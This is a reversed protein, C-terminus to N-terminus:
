TAAASYKSIRLSPLGTFGLRQILYCHQGVINLFVKLFSFKRWKRTIVAQALTIEDPLPIRM